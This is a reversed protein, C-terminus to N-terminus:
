LRSDKTPKAAVEYHFSSHFLVKVAAIWICTGLGVCYVISFLTCAIFSYLWHIVRYEFLWKFGKRPPEIRDKLNAYVVQFSITTIFLTILSAGMFLSCAVKSREFLEQIHRINGLFCIMVNKLLFSMITYLTMVGVIVHCNILRIIYSIGMFFVKWFNGLNAGDKQRQKSLKAYILPLMMFFYAMDSFGLAHRKAQSWRAHITGVWTSDEPMYNITPYLIPKVQSEGLTLLFCKIGMHWDEAIWEADWGGVRRALNLSLSYTSYPFRISNPDGLVSIESMATFMTGVILPMPQRHYNKVHFVPSQWLTVDRSRPEMEAYQQTLNEFYLWHFDSDADAVTLVVHSMDEGKQTLHDVLWRFAWAMNSAKGPPDNPLNAPHYTTGIERFNESFKDKLHCAKDRADIEREEMALLVCIQEKAIGSKGVSGIAMSLVEIDEKYNPFIVWHVVKQNEAAHRDMEPSELKDEVELAGRMKVLIFPSFFVMYLGNSLVSVSSVIILLMFIEQPYSYSLIILIMPMVFVMFFPIARCFLMWHKFIQAAQPSLSSMSMAPSQTGGDAMEDEGSYQVLLIGTFVTLCLICAVLVAPYAVPSYLYLKDLSLYNVDAWHVQKQNINSIVGSPHKIQSEKMWKISTNWIDSGEGIRTDEMIWLPGRTEISPSLPVWTHAGVESDPAGQAQHGGFVTRAREQWSKFVNLGAVPYPALLALALFGLLFKPSGMPQAHRSAFRVVSPRKM